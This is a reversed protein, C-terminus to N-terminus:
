FNYTFGITLAGIGGGIIDHSTAGLNFTTRKDDSITDDGAPNDTHSLEKTSVSRFNLRAINIGAELTFKDNFAYTVVPEAYIGFSTSSDKVYGPAGYFDGSTDKDTLTLFNIGGEALLNFKDISFLVYRVYPTVGIGFRSVKNAPSGFEVNLRGGVALKDSLWFGAHPALNIDSSKATTNNVNDQNGTTNINVSGGVYIQASLSVSLLAAFAALFLKKM